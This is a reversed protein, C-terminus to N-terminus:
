ASENTRVKTLFSRKAMKRVYDRSANEGMKGPSDRANGLGRCPRTKCLMGGVRSFSFFPPPSRVPPSACDVRSLRTHEPESSNGPLPSADTLIIIAESRARTYRRPAARYVIPSEYIECMHAAKRPARSRRWRAAAHVHIRQPARIYLAHPRIRLVVCLTFNRARPPFLTAITGRARVKALMVKHRRTRRM